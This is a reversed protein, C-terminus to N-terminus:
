RYGKGWRATLERVLARPHRRTLMATTTTRSHNAWEAKYPETGKLLDVRTIQEHKARAFVYALLTKGPSAKALELDFTPKYYYLRGQHQFGLHMAVPRGAVTLLDLHLVNALDPSAVLAECFARDRESEFQSSRGTGSFNAVHMAFFTPLLPGIDRAGRLVAYAVDDVNKSLMKINRRVYKAELRSALEQIQLLDAYPHEQKTGTELSAIGGAPTFTMAARYTRGILDRTAHPVTRGLVSDAPFRSLKASRCPARREFWRWFAHGISADDAVTVAETYDARYVGLTNWHEPTENAYWFPLLLQLARGRLGAVVFSTRGGGFGQQWAEFFAPFAFPSAGSRQTWENWIPRAALAAPKTLIEFRLRPERPM